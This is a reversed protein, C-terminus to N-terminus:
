DDHASTQTSGFRQWWVNAREVIGDYGHPLALYQLNVLIDANNPSPSVSHGNKVHMDQNQASFACLWLYSYPRFTSWILKGRVEEFLWIPGMQDWRWFNRKFFGVHTMGNGDFSLRPGLRRLAWVVGIAPAASLVALQITSALPRTSDGLAEGFILALLGIPVFLIFVTSTASLGFVEPVTAPADVFEQYTSTPQMGHVLLDFLKAGKTVMVRLLPHM